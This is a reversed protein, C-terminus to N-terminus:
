NTSEPRDGAEEVPSPGNITRFFRDAAWEAFWDALNEALQDVQIESAEAAAQIAEGLPAGELIAALLKYQAGSLARRRVVFDRRSIALHTLHAAPLEVEANRRVASAYEHVPFRFSELRLSRAPVLRIDALMEPPVSALDAPTLLPEGEDGPGDFVESYIRDLRALDIMLEPWSPEDGTEDDPKTQELYRPFHKGLHFLTYSTSPYAQLYGFAFGSFTEEGLAHVLAPYEDRLCELLRAYYANGYIELREISTLARSPNIVQEIEGASVDIQQRAGDSEIGGIIGDPHTIVSQMWQQIRDLNCPEISM